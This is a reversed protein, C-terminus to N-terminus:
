KSRASKCKWTRWLKPVFSTILGLPLLCLFWIGVVEIAQWEAKTPMCDGAAGM